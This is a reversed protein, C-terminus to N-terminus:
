SKRRQPQSVLPAIGMLGIKKYRAEAKLLLNSATDLKKFLQRLAAELDIIFPLHDLAPIRRAM